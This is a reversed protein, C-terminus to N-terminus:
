INIFIAEIYMHMLVSLSIPPKWLTLPLYTGLKNTGPKVRKLRRTLDEVRLLHLHAIKPNPHEELRKQHSLAFRQMCDKVTEIKLDRHLDDNWKTYTIDQIPIPITYTITYPHYCM